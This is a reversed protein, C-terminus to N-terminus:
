DDARHGVGKRGERQYEYYYGQTLIYVGDSCPVRTPYPAHAKYSHLPGGVCPLVDTQVDSM